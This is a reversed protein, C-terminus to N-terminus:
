NVAVDRLPPLQSVRYTKIAEPRGYHGDIRVLLHERLDFGAKVEYTGSLRIRKTSGLWEHSM